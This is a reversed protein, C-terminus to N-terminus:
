AVCPHYVVDISQIVKWPNRQQVVIFDRVAGNTILIKRFSYDGYKAKRSSLYVGILPKINASKSPKMVLDGYKM